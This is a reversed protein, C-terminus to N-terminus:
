NVRAKERYIPTQNWRIGMEGCEPLIELIGVRTFIEVQSKYSEKFEVELWRDFLPFKEYEPTPEPM